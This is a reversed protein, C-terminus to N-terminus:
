AGEDVTLIRDGHEDVSATRTGAEDVSSRGTATENVSSPRYPDPGGPVALAPDADTLRVSVAYAAQPARAASWIRGPLCAAFPVPFEEAALRNPQWYANREARAPRRAREPQLSSGSPMTEPVSLENRFAYAERAARRPSRSPLAVDQTGPIQPEDPPVGNAILYAAAPARRFVDPSDLGLPQIPASEPPAGTGIFYAAASARLRRLREPEASAGIPAEVSPVPNHIQYADTVARRPSRVREPLTPLVPVDTEPPTQSAIEYASFAARRPAPIRSPLWTQGVVAEDTQLPFQIPIRYADRAARRPRLQPTAVSPTTGPPLPETAYYVCVRMYDIYISAASASQFTLSVSLGAAFDATTWDTTNALRTVVEPSVTCFSAPNALEQSSGSAAPAVVFGLESIAGGVTARRSYEIGIGTITAGSPVTFPFASIRVTSSSDGGLFDIRAELGDEAALYEPNSWPQSFGVPLPEVLTPLYCTHATDADTKQAATNRYVYAERPARRPFRKPEAIEQRGIPVEYESSQVIRASGFQTLRIKGDQTIRARLPRDILHSNESIWERYAPHFRRQIFQRHVSGGSGVSSNGPPMSSDAGSYTVTFRVWDIYAIEAVGTADHQPTISVGFGSDFDGPTWTTDWLDAPGGYTATAFTNYTPWSAGAAKNSGVKVGGKMLKVEYDTIPAAVWQGSRNIEVEIGLITSGALTTFLPGKLVIPDGVELGTGMFFNFTACNNNGDNVLADDKANWSSAVAVLPYQSESSM